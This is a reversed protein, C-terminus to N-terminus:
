GREAGLIAYGRAPLRLRSGDLRAGPSALLVKWARKPLRRVAEAPGLSLAVFTAEEGSEREYALTGAGDDPMWAPPRGSRLSARARRLRALAGVERMLGADWEPGDWPMCRRDDPDRGGDLGVEDGYYVCPVGPATMQLVFAQLRARRDPLIRRLRETDHSGLLRLLGAAASAPYDEEILRMADAYASPALTGGLLALTHERWRYDMVGDFMDGELWRGGDGWVEGLIYAEPDAAKVAKRFARWCEPAVEDAVDLRWGAIGARRIWHTGVMAVFEQVHPRSTALKPMQWVGAFTRYTQQGERAEVEDALLEYWSAYPSARGLREVDRFPGFGTGSHNFVGDLVLRVGKSRAEKALRVLAETGGFRPDVRLYDDTTYGHNSQTAFVPNLYLATVGLAVLYDLRQRVGELDGGMWNTATPKTGWPEVGPPDNAPDGNAFRDPFVQYFVAGELWQPVKPGASAPAHAAFPKAGPALGGEGFRAGDLRFRYELAGGLADAVGQWYDYLADSRAIRLPVPEWRGKRRVLAEAKAVDGKRARLRLMAQGPTRWLRDGAMPDHRLASATLLGDGPQSPRAAYGAPEVVLLSNVNGNADPASPASPDRVWRAGDVVFLYQYVGPEIRWAGVWAGDAAQRMPFAARDWANFQGVVSVSSAPGPPAYRFEVLRSEPGQPLLPPVAAPFFAV